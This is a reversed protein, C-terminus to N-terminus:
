ADREKVPPKLPIRKKSGLDISKSKQVCDALKEVALKTDRLPTAVNEYNNPMTMSIGTADSLKVIFLDNLNPIVIMNPSLTMYQIISGMMSQDEFHLNLAIPLPLNSPGPMKWKMNQVIMYINRDDLNKVLKLSSGDGWRTYISCAPNYDDEQTQGFVVWTNINELYFTEAQASTFLFVSALLGLLKRM